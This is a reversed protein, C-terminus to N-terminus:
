IFQLGGNRTIRMNMGEATLSTQTAAERNRKRCACKEEMESDEQIGEPTGQNERDTDLTQTSSSSSTARASHTTSSSSTARASHTTSSSTARDSHTISSSTIRTTLTSNTTDRGQRQTRYTNREQNLFDWNKTLPQQNRAPRHLHEFVHQTIHQTLTLYARPTIHIGDSKFERASTDDRIIATYGFTREIYVGVALTMKDALM